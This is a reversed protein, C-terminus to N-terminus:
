FRPMDKITESVYQEISENLEELEEKKIKILSKIGKIKEETTLSYKYLILEITETFIKYKSYQQGYLPFKGLYHLLTVISKINDLKINFQSNTEQVTDELLESVTQLFPGYSNNNKDTKKHYLSFSLDYDYYILEQKKTYKKLTQDRLKARISFSGNTELFGSLWPNDSLPSTDFTALSFGSNRTQNIHNIMNNFAYIKFWSPKGKNTLGGLNPTRFYKSVLGIFKIVGEKNSIVYNLSCKGYCQITGHGIRERIAEALPQNKTNFAFTIRPYGTDKRIIVSGSAEFLGTIYKSFYPKNDM